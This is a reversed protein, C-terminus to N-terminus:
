VKRKAGSKVNQAAKRKRVNYNSSKNEDDESKYRKDLDDLYQQFSKELKDLEEFWMSEPSSNELIELERKSNEIDNELKDINERTFCHMSLQLVNDFNGKGELHVPPVGEQEMQEEFDKKSLGKIKLRDEIVGHIFYIKQNMIEIRTKLNQMLYEKRKAYLQLRKKGHVKVIELANPFHQLNYNEDFLYM